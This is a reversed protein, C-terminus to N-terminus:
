KLSTRFSTNSFLPLCEMYSTVWLAMHGEQCRRWALFGMNFAHLRAPAGGAGRSFGRAGDMFTEAAPLPTRILRADLDALGRGTFDEM